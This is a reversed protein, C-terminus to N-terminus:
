VANSNKLGAPAGQGETPSAHGGGGADGSCGGRQSSTCTQYPFSWSSKGKAGAGLTPRVAAPVRFRITWRRRDTGPVPPGPRAGGCGQLRVACKQGSQASELPTKTDHAHPAQVETTMNVLWMHYCSTPPVYEGDM